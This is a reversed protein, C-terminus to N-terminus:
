GEKAEEYETIVPSKRPKSNYRSVTPGPRGGQYVKWGLQAVCSTSKPKYSELEDLVRSQILKPNNVYVEILRCVSKSPAMAGNEWRSATPTSVGLISEFEAQTLGLEMRATRIQSPTLLGRARAYGEALQRSLEGSAEPGLEYEGCQDCVYHEIGTATISVGKYEEVIPESSVRMKSGCEMCLM